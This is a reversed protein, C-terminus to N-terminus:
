PARYDDRVTIHAQLRQVATPKSGPIAALIKGRIQEIAHDLFLDCRKLRIDREPDGRNGGYGALNYTQSIQDANEFSITPVILKSGIYHIMPPIFLADDQLSVDLDRFKIKHMDGFFNFTHANNLINHHTDTLVLALFYARLHEMPLAAIGLQKKDFAERLVEQYKAEVTDHDPWQEKPDFIPVHTMAVGTVCGTTRSAHPLASRDARPHHCGREPRGAAEPIRLAGPSQHAALRHSFDEQDCGIRRM